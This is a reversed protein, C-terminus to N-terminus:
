AGKRERFEPFAKKALRVLKDHGGGVNQSSTMTTAAGGYGSSRFVMLDSSLSLFVEVSQGERWVRFGVDRTFAGGGGLKAYTAGDFLIDRLERAIEVDLPRIVPDNL